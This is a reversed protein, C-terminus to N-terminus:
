SFISTFGSHCVGFPFGRACLCELGQTLLEDIVEMGVEACELEIRGVIVDELAWECMDVLGDVRDKLM